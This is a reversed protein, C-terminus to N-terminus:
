SSHYLYAHSYRFCQSRRHKFILDFRLAPDTRPGIVFSRQILEYLHLKREPLRSYPILKM